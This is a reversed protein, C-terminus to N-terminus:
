LLHKGLVTNGEITGPNQIIEMGSKSRTLM